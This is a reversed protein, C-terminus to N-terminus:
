NGALENCDRCIIGVHDGPPYWTDFDDAPIDGHVRPLDSADMGCLTHPGPKGDWTAETAHVTGIYTEASEGGFSRSRETEPEYVAAYGNM